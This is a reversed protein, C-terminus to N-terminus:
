AYGIMFENFTIYGNNDDDFARFIFISIEDLLEPPEPRLKSYLRVFEQKDLKGDANNDMFQDYLHKIEARTFGTQSTLFSYDAESLGHVNTKKEDKIKPSKLNKDKGGKNGM